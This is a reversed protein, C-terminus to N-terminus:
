NDKVLEGIFSKTEKNVEKQLKYVIRAAKLVKLVLEPDKQEGYFVARVQTANVGPIRDAVLTSYPTPLAKQITNLETMLTEFYTPIIKKKRTRIIPGKDM